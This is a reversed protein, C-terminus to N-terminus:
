IGNPVDTHDKGEVIYLVFALLLLSLSFPLAKRYEIVAETAQVMM